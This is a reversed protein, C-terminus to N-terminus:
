TEAIINMCIIHSHYVFLISMKMRDLGVNESDQIKKSSERPNEEQKESEDDQLLWIEAVVQSYTDDKEGERKM